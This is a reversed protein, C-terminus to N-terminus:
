LKFTKVETESTTTHYSVKLHSSYLFRNATQQLASGHKTVDKKKNREGTPEHHTGVPDNEHQPVAAHGPLDFVEQHGLFAAHVDRHLTLHERPLSCLLVVIFVLLLIVNPFLLTLTLALGVGLLVVGPPGVWLQSGCLSEIELTTWLPLGAWPHLLFRTTQRRKVDKTSPRSWCCSQIMTSEDKNRQPGAPKWSKYLMESKQKQSYLFIFM